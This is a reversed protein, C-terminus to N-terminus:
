ARSRDLVDRASQRANAVIREVDFAVLDGGRKVIRGDSIVTDVNAPTVSRVVTAEANVVPAVNIDTGRILIIDARKGPTLSGTTDAIGLARAGDITAMEICDAFGIEPLGATDTGEWPIGMNWAVSMAEFLNVPHISTADISFSVTVGAERWRLLATRPDGAGGLRLESHVSFSLPTGTRAMIARDEATAALFHCILFDPGLFGWNELEAARVKTVGGQETHIAVPLSRARAEQMEALFVPTEGLDPGRLNIGLHVVGDFADNAGFWEGQVRDVDAFSLAEDVPLMDRHGYAYRARILGDRHARLEADAHEPTRTNHSWNHVTTIGANAAEVLGLLVSNYFDDPTYHASTAWKAPFYGYDDAIFNRGLSSWMHFHSDVLGPMVIMDTADITEADPAVVDTDIREIIGDDVLVDGRPVTGISADASVITGGRILYQRRAPAQNEV